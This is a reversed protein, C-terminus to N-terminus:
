KTESFFSNIFNQHFLNQSIHITKLNCFSIKWLILFIVLTPRTAINKEPLKLGYNLTLVKIIRFPHTALSLLDFSGWKCIRGDPGWSILAPLFKTRVQRACTGFRSSTFSRLHISGCPFSIDCSSLYSNSLYKNVMLFHNSNKWNKLSCDFTDLTTTTQLYILYAFYVYSHRHCHKHFDINNNKKSRSCGWIKWPTKQTGYRLLRWRGTWWAGTMRQRLVTCICQLKHLLDDFKQWLLQRM